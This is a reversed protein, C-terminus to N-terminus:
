WFGVRRNTFLLLPTPDYEGALKPLMFVPVLGTVLWVASWPGAGM